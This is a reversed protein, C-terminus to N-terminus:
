QASESFNWHYFLKYLMYALIRVDNLSDLTISLNSSKTLRDLSIKNKSKLPFYECYM